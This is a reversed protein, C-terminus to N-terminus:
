VYVRYEESVRTVGSDRGVWTDGSVQSGLSAMLPEALVVVSVMQDKTERIALCVMDRQVKIV